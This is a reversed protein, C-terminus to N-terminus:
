AAEQAEASFVRKERLMLTAAMALLSLGLALVFARDYSGWHDFILAGVLAGLGGAIQHVMGITGSVTGMRAAGFINGAFVVTLPATIPFTLGYLLAFAVISSTSQSVIIFGFIGIRMIFCLATPRTAGFADALAGSLLVGFLGMLGMLALLNGAFVTGVGEDTAFAVIHTAVFFDQFGCCAYVIVLLWLQRSGLIERGSPGPGAELAGGVAGMAAPSGRARTRVRASHPPRSRVAALVVPVAVAAMAIGVLGFSTRWEASMLLSSLLIIIVLQGTSSGAFAASNAIGRRRPFWRSVMVGVPANGSAANGLAYVVGYLAFVQWPASVRGTMGMGLAAVVAGSAIIWRLSYRDALRGAVPMAVASVILYLTAALSVSSRSWGLDETMPKLLLGFVHRSGGGFFLVVFASALIVWSYDLRRM